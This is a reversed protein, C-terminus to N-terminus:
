DSLKYLRDHITTTSMNRYAKLKMLLTEKYSDINEENNNLLYLRYAEIEYVEKYAHNILSIDSSSLFPYLDDKYMRWENDVIPSPWIALRSRALEHSNMYDDFQKVYLDM